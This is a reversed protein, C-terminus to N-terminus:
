TAPLPDPVRAGAARLERVNKSYIPVGGRQQALEVLYADVFDLGDRSEWRAIAAVLVDPEACRVGPALVIQRLYSAIQRRSASRFFRRLLYCFEHLVLPELWVRARGAQVDLLFRRCEDSHPNAFHPHLLVNTDLLGLSEVAANDGTV